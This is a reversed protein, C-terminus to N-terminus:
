GYMFFAAAYFIFALTLAIVIIWGLLQKELKQGKFLPLKDMFKKLDSAWDINGSPLEYGGDKMIRLAEPLDKELIELSVGGVDAYGYLLRASLENRLYCDIGESKLLSVLTQADAPYTFQAIVVMKDM